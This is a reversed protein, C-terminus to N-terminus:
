RYKVSTVTTKRSHWVTLKEKMDMNSINDQEAMKGNAKDQFDEEWRHQMVPFLNQIM